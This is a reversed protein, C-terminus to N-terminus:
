EGGDYVGEEPLEGPTIHKVRAATTLPSKDAGIGGGRKRGRVHHHVVKGHHEHEVHGGHAHEHTHGGHAYHEAHGGRARQKLASPRVMGKIMARDEAADEHHAHGGQAYHPAKGGHAHAKVHGGRAKRDHRGKVHEGEGHMHHPAKVRGGKKREKAEKMVNSDEGAYVSVEGGRARMKEKHRARSM